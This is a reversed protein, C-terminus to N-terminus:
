PRENPATSSNLLAERALFDLIADAAAAPDIGALDQRQAAGQAQAAGPLLRRPRRRGPQQPWNHIADAVTPASPAAEIGGRRAPGIAVLPAPPASREAVLVLPAAARLVRRRGGPLAQTVAFGAAEAEVGVVRAVLAGGLAEAALYPVMGSGEGTEAREGALILAAPRDRLWALLGPLTDARPATPILVARVAGLGLCARLLAEGDEAPGAHLATVVAGARRALTIARADLDPLRPRLSAPHRGASVLVVAEVVM